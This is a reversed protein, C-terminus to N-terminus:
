RSTGQRRATRKEGAGARGRGPGRPKDEQGYYAQAGHKRQFHKDLLARSIPATRPNVQLTIFAMKALEELIVANYVAKAASNGWTFPGHSAVLAMPVHAAEIKLKKFTEVVILGTMDEYDANIMKPTMEETCPVPCPLHDAHTTGLTPISKGAQAWATAYTSHTHCVGGIGTFSRYLRSHTKTDSSPRLRGHIVRNELDVIVMDSPTLKDYDVGSPKIAFVGEREDFASANGFTYVALGKAAIEMNALYADERIRAYRKM